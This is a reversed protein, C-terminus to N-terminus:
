WWRVSRAVCLVMSNGDPAFHVGMESCLMVDHVTLVVEELSSAPHTPDLRWLRVCM